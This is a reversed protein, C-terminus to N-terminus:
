AASELLGLGGCVTGPARFWQRTLGGPTVLQSPTGDPMVQKGALTWAQDFFVSCIAEQPFRCASGMRRQGEDSLDPVTRAPRRRNIWELLSPPDIGRWAAAIALYSLPSYAVGARVMALAIAAADGAQGPYTEPLRIFVNRETWHDAETLDIVEAGGPMAQAMQPAVWTGPDQTSTMGWGGAATVIGVHRASFKGIRYGDGILIEGLAVGAGVMGGINGVYMDGPRVDALSKIQETM